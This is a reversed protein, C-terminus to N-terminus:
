LFLKVLQSTTESTCEAPGLCGRILHPGPDGLPLLFKPTSGAIHGKTWNRQGSTSHLHQLLLTIILATVHPTQANQEVCHERPIQLKESMQMSRFNQKRISKSRIHSRM